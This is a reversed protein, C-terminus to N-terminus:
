VENNNSQNLKYLFHASNGFEAHHHMEESRIQVEFPIKNLIVTTHLARYGNLKPYKIFDKNRYAVPCWRQEVMKLVAYCAQVEKAPNRPNIIIRLAILDYIEKLKRGRKMKKYISYLGKVRGHVTFSVIQHQINSSTNLLRYIHFKAYELIKSRQQLIRGVHRSLSEYETPHLVHFSIEELELQLKWIGLCSAVPALIHLCIKALSEDIGAISFPSSCQYRLDILFVVLAIVLGRKDKAHQYLSQVMKGPERDCRGLCSWIFSLSRSVSEVLIKYGGGISLNHIPSNSPINVILGTVITLFDAQIEYLVQAIHLGRKVRYLSYKSCAFIRAQCLKLISPKAGPLTALQSSLQQWLSYFDENEPNNELWHFLIDEPFTAYQLPKNEKVNQLKVQQQTKSYESVSVISTGLCSRTLPVTPHGVCSMSTFLEHRKSWYYIPINSYLFANPIRYLSVETSGTVFGWQM